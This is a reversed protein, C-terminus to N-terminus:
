LFEEDEDKNENTLGEVPEPHCGLCVVNIM